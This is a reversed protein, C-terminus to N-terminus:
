SSKRNIAALKAQANRVRIIAKTKRQSQQAAKKQSAMAKKMGQNADMPKISKIIGSKPKISPIVGDSPKIPELSQENMAQRISLVNGRGYCHRLLALCQNQGDCRVHIRTNVSGLRIVAIFSKLGDGVVECIKM